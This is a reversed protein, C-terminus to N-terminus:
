TSVGTDVHEYVECMAIPAKETLQVLYYPPVQLQHYYGLVIHSIRGFELTNSSRHHRWMEMTGNSLGQLKWKQSQARLNQSSM